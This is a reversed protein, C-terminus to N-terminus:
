LTAEDLKVEGEHATTLISNALQAKTPQMTIIMEEIELGRM